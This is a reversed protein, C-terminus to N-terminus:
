SIKPPLTYVLTKIHLLLHREIYDCTAEEENGGEGGAKKIAQAQGFGFGFEPELEFEYKLDKGEAILM